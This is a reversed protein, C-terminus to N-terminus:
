TITFYITKNQPKSKAKRGKHIHLLIYTILIRMRITPYITLLLIFIYYIEKRLPHHSTM